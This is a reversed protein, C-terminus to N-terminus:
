YLMIVCGEKEIVMRMGLPSAVIMDAGYFKEFLRLSKKTVKIGMKFNDDMNGRFTHVHDPPYDEPNTSLKDTSSSPLTYSTLFRTFNQIQAESTTTTPSSSLSASFHDIFSQVFALASNRFPLLVLM